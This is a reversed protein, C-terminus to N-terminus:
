MGVEEPGEGGRGEQLSWKQQASHVAGRSGSYLCRLQEVLEVKRTALLQEVVVDLEKTRSEQTEASIIGYQLAETLITTNLEVLVKLFEPANSVM